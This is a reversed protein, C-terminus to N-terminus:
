SHVTRAGRPLAMPFVGDEAEHILVHFLGVFTAELFFVVRPAVGLEELVLYLVVERFDLRMGHQHTSGSFTYRPESGFNGFHNWFDALTGRLPLGLVTIPM